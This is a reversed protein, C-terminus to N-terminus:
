MLEGQHEPKYNTWVVETRELRRNGDSQMSMTFVGFETRHWDLMDWESGYGSIAVRGKQKLLLEVTDELDHQVVGYTANSKASPYPPDVYIVAYDRDKMQDLLEVAPKCTFTVREVRRNLAKVREWFPPHRGPKNDYTVGFGGSAGDAHYMSMKCVVFFKRAREIEDGEDLTAKCHRFESEHLPTYRVVRELEDPEDRIMRWFNYVRENLDNVIERGCERRSLLVGLMGGHTEVYTVKYDTPLVSAVGRGSMHAMSKGGYYGMATLKM